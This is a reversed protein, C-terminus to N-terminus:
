SGLARLWVLRDLEDGDTRAFAWRLSTLEDYDAIIKEVLTTVLESTIPPWSTHETVRPDMLTPM